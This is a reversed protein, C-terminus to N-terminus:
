AKNYIGFVNGDPAKIQAYFGHGGPIGTRPKAVSARLSKAKKLTAPIDDVQVYIMTSRTGPKGEPKFASISQSATKTAM